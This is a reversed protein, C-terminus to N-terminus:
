SWGGTMRRFVSASGGTRVVGRGSTTIVCTVGGGVYVTMLEAGNMGGGGGNM